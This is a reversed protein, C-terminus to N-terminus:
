KDEKWSDILKNISDNQSKLYDEWRKRKEEATLFYYHEINSQILESGLKDMELYIKLWKDDEETDIM